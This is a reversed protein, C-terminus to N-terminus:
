LYINNDVQNSYLILKNVLNDDIKNLQTGYM